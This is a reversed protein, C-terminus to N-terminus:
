TPVHMVFFRSVVLFSCIGDPLLLTVIYGPRCLLSCDDVHFLLSSNYHIGIGIGIGKGGEKERTTRFANRPTKMELCLEPFNIVFEETYSWAGLYEFHSILSVVSEGDYNFIM